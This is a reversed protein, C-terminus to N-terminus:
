ENPPRDSDDPRSTLSEAFEELAQPDPQQSPNRGTIRLREIRGENSLLVHAEHIEVLVRNDVVQDGVRYTHTEGNKERIMAWAEVGGLQVGVLELLPRGTRDRSQYEPLSWSDLDAASEDSTDDITNTPAGGRTSALWAPIVALLVGALVAAGLGGM